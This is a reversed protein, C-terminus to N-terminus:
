QLSSVEALRSKLASKIRDYWEQLDKESIKSKCSDKIESDGLIRVKAQPFKELVTRKHRETMVWIVDAKKVDDATLQRARKDQMGVMGKDRLFKRTIPTLRRGKRHLGKATLGVKCSPALGVSDARIEPELQRCLAEALVSRVLNNSCAFIWYMQLGNRTVCSNESSVLPSRCFQRGSGGDELEDGFFSVGIFFNGVRLSV